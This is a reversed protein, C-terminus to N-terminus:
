HAVVRLNNGEVAIVKASQGEALAHDAVVVWEKSGMLGQTFRIKGLQNASVAEIITGIRGIEEGKAQGVKSDSPRNKDYFKWSAVAIIAFVAYLSAQLATSMDPWVATVLAMLLAALGLWLLYFTGTVIEMSLLALGIGTWIWTLTM